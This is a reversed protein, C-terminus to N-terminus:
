TVFMSDVKSFHRPKPPSSHLSLVMGVSQRSHSTRSAAGDAAVINSLDLSILTGKMGGSDGIGVNGGM